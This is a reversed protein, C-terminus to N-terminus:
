FNYDNKLFSNKLYIFLIKYRTFSSQTSVNSFSPNVSSLEKVTSKLNVKNKKFPKFCTFNIIVWKSYKLIWIKLPFFEGTKYRIFYSHEIGLLNNNFYFKRFFKNNTVLNTLRINKLKKNFFYESFFINNIFTLGYNLYFKILTTFSKDQKVNEQFQLDSYWHRYWFQNLGLRTIVPYGM